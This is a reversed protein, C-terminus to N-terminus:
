VQGGHVRGQGLVLRQQDAPIGNQLEIAEKLNRVERFPRFKLCGRNKHPTKSM